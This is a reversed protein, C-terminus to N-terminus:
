IPLCKGGVWGTVVVWWGCIGFSFFFSIFFFTFLGNQLTLTGIGFCLLFDKRLSLLLLASMLLIFVSFFFGWRSRTKPSLRPAALLFLMFLKSVCNKTHKARGFLSVMMMLLPLLWRWGLFLRYPFLLKSIMLYVDLILRMIAFRAVSPALFFLHRRLFIRFEHVQSSLFLLFLKLQARRNSARGFFPFFLFPRSTWAVSM